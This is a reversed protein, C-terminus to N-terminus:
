QAEPKPLGEAAKPIFPCENICKIYYPKMGTLYCLMWKRWKNFKGVELRPAVPSYSGGKKDVLQPVDSEAM